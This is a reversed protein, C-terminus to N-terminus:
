YRCVRQTDICSVEEFSSTTCKADALLQVLRKEYEDLAEEADNACGHAPTINYRGGDCVYVSTCEWETGIEPADVCGALGFGGLAGLAAVIAVCELLYSRAPLVERKM